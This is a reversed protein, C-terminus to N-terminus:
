TQSREISAHQERVAVTERLHDTTRVRRLHIEEKLILRREIVVIEEMVPIITVDGDQRVPPTESVARGIPVHKVDVRFTATPEDVAIDRTETHIQLRVTGVVASRRDISLEQTHLPVITEDPMYTIVANFSAGYGSEDGCSM